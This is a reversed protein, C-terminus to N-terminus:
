ASIIGIFPDFFQVGGTNPPTGSAGLYSHNEAFFLSVILTRGTGSQPVFDYYVTQFEGYDDQDLMAHQTATVSTPTIQHVNGSGPYQSYLGNWNYPSRSSSLLGTPLSFTADGDRIAFYNVTRLHVGSTPNRDEACYMGGFNLPRLQDDSAVRIKAGFRIGNTFLSSDNPINVIQSWEHRTWNSASNNPTNGDISTLTTNGVVRVTAANTFTGTTGSGRDTDTNDITSLNNYYQGAGFLKIIRSMKNPYGDFDDLKYPEDPFLFQNGVYSAFGSNFLGSYHLWGAIGKFFDGVQNQISAGYPVGNFARWVPYNDQDFNPNSLLNGVGSESSFNRRLRAGLAAGVVSM